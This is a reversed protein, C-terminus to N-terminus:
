ASVLAPLGLAERLRPNLVEGDRAVLTERVIDDALDISLAGKKVILGLFNVVNRAFMQSAHAPVSSSLNLPGIVSVGNRLVTEGPKTVECNGGQEAAVDVIVSGPKMGDVANATILLPAKKGPVAATAIVVDQDALAQGLLERQRAYFAEDMAKAYGGADQSDKAEIALEVFRAGLSEIQEKVAPRVDYAEVVAGLRKATAIAQLGAVGAGIVFVKAPALTGAATMLMPFLRPLADAALLVAKYGIVTAISSLADMSQARTTRPVLDMAFAAVGSGALAQVGKPAALADLFGVVVQGKRLGDLRASGPGSFSRVHCLIDATALLEARPLIRAGKEQFQADPLGAATGAGTEVAVDLGLKVLHPALNPVLAVRREGAGAEKLIGAIMADEMNVRGAVEARIM